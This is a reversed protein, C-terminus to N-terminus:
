QAATFEQTLKSPVQSIDCTWLLAFAIVMGARSKTDQVRWSGTQLVKGKTLRTNEMMEEKDESFIERRILLERM